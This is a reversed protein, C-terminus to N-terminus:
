IDLNQLALQYAEHAELESSFLGLGKKKGNIGIQARWKQSAKHWSVGTYQSAPNKRWTDKSRNERQSIIQLNSVHNNLPNFDIHDVVREYGCPTQVL